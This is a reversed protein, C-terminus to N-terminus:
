GRQKRQYYSNFGVNIYNYMVIGNATVDCVGNGFNAFFDFIAQEEATFTEIRYDDETGINTEYITWRVRRGAVSRASYSAFRPYNVGTIGSVVQGVIPSPPPFPFSFAQGVPASRFGTVTVDDYWVASILGALFITNVQAQSFTVDPRYRVQISHEGSLGRYDIWVRQTLLTSVPAM